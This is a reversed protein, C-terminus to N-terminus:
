YMNHSENNLCDVETKMSRILEILGKCKNDLMLWRQGDETTQWIIEVEKWTKIEKKLEIMDFAKRQLIEGIEKKDQNFEQSLKRRRIALETPTYEKQM